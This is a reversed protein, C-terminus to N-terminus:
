RRGSKRNSRRSSRRNKRTNRRRRSKRRSRRGGLFPEDREFWENKIAFKHRTNRFNYHQYGNILSQRASNLVNDIRVQTEQPSEPTSILNLRIGLLNEGMMERVDKLPIKYSLGVIPVSIDALTPVRYGEARFINYHSSAQNSDIFENVQKVSAYPLIKQFERFCHQMPRPTSLREAFEEIHSYGDLNPLLAGSYGDEHKSGGGMEHSALLYSLSGFRNLPSRNYLVNGEPLGNKTFAKNLEKSIYEGKTIRPSVGSGSYDDMGFSHKDFWLEGNTHNYSGDLPFQYVIGDVPFWTDPNDSNKGSSMYFAQRWYISGDPRVAELITLLRDELTRLVSDEPNDEAYACFKRIPIRKGSPTIAFFTLALLEPICNKYDPLRSMIEQVDPMAQIEEPAFREIVIPQRYSLPAEGTGVRGMPAALPGEGTGMRLLPAALPGEGTGMRLLPAALPGEGTGMRPAPTGVPGNGPIIPGNNNLANPIGIRFGSAAM